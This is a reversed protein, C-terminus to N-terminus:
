ETALDALRTAVQAAYFPTGIATYLAQAEQLLQRAAEQDGPQRRALYVAAGETLSRAQYWRKGMRGEAGAADAFGQLASEWVGRAQALRAGASALYAANWVVPDAQYLAHGAALVAAAETAREQSIYLSCLIAHPALGVLGIRREAALMAQRLDPELEGAAPPDYELLLDAL